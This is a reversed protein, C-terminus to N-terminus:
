YCHLTQFSLRKWCPRDGSTSHYVTPRIRVNASSQINLMVVPFIYDDGSLFIEEGEDLLYMLYNQEGSLIFSYSEFAEVDKKIRFVKCPGRYYTYLDFM